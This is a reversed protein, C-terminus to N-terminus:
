LIMSFLDIPRFYSILPLAHLIYLAGIMNANHKQDPSCLKRWIILMLRRVLGNPRLAGKL